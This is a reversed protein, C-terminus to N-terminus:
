KLAAIVLGAVVSGIISIPMGILALTVGWRSQWARQANATDTERRVEVEDRLAIETRELRDRYAMMDAAYVQSPVFSLKGIEARIAQFGLHMEREVRSLGRSVEGLTVETSGGADAGLSM